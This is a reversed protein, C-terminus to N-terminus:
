WRGPVMRLPRPPMQRRSPNRGCRGCPTRGQWGPPILRDREAAYRAHADELVEVAVAAEAENVGGSAELRDVALRQDRGVLWYLTPMPTGDDLLPSNRIVVPQGAADRVVM